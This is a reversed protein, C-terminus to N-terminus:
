YNLQNEYEPYLEHILKKLGLDIVRPGPRSFVNSDIKIYHNNKLASLSEYNDSEIMTDYNYSEGILYSPNHEILKELSYSWGKVDTAVNIGGAAQLVENIFTGEGATNEKKGTGVVYYVTKRESKPILDVTQNVRDEKLKLTSVLARAEYNHDVLAGLKSIFTYIENIKSPSKQTLIQIKASALTKLVDENMHTAAIVVDPELDLIGELDPEYLSGVTQVDKSELPYDCYITRGVIKDGAGIAFLIETVSPALSVVKKASKEFKYHVDGDGIVIPFKEDGMKYLTVQNTKSTWGVKYHITEFFFKMPIYPMGNRTYIKSDLTMSADNVIVKNTDRYFTFSVDSNKVVITQGKVETSFGFAELDETAIYARGNKIETTMMREEGNVNVPSVSSAFSLANIGISMILVLLLCGLKRFKTNM